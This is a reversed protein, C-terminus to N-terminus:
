FDRRMVIADVPAAANRAGARYYAVRKAVERFGQSRYLETAAHNTEAVELFMHRCHRAAAESQAAALLASGLGKRRAERVVGIAALDCSDAAARCLIVGEPAANDRSALFAFSGPVGLFSAVSHADWPPDLSQELVAAIVAAYEIGATQIAPTM